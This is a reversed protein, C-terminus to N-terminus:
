HTSSHNALKLIYMSGQALGKLRKAGPPTMCNNGRCQSGTKWVMNSSIYNFVPKINLFYINTNLKEGFIILSNQKYMLVCHCCNNHLITCAVYNVLLM